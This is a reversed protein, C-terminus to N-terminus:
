VRTQGTGQGTRYINYGWIINALLVLTGFTGVGAMLHTVTQEAEPGPDYGGISGALTFLVVMGVLGVNHMWFHVKVLTMSYIPRNVLRPIFYYISGFIGMEVWGLLNVHGHALVILHGHPATDVFMRLVPVGGMIAGWSFGIIAYIICAYVFMLTYRTYEPDNIGPINTATSEQAM